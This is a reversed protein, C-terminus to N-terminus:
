GPECHRCPRMGASRAEDATRLEVRRGAGILRAHRCTPWCYVGTTSSALYRVRRRALQALQDVDVHEARLLEVKTPLGFAYGGLGGDTRIVRHCPILVPVPNHGLATGVARVAAPRGIRGAVWGYPRVEGRPILIAQGLVDREFTTLDHLDFRLERADGRDLARVLGPPPRDAALLPRQFRQRYEAAFSEPSGGAAAETMVFSIGRDSFAVFVPLPGEDVRVWRSVLRRVLEDSRPRVQLSRLHQILADDSASSGSTPEPRSDSTSM